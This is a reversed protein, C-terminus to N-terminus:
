GLYDQLYWMSIRTELSCLANLVTPRSTVYYSYTRISLAGDFHPGLKTFSDVPCSKHFLDWVKVMGHHVM